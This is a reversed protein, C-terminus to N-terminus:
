RPLSAAPPPAFGPLYGGQDLLVSMVRAGLRPGGDFRGLFNGKQAAILIAHTGPEAWFWAAQGPALLAWKKRREAPTGFAAFGEQAHLVLATPQPTAVCVLTVMGPASPPALRLEGGPLVPEPSGSPCFAHDAATTEQRRESQLFAHFTPLDVDFYVHSFRFHGQPERQRRVWDHEPAYLRTIGFVNRGPLVHVPDLQAAHQSDVWAQAHDENQRYDISSDGIFRYAHRKPWVVLNTFALHNGLYPKQEAAALLLVAVTVVARHRMWALGIGALLCALAVAILAFRFGIQARFALMFYAILGILSLGAFLCPGTRPGARILLALGVLQALALAIPTKVAWQLPFYYWRPPHTEGLILVPWDKTREQAVTIDVGTLFDIPLPSPLSPFRRALSHM